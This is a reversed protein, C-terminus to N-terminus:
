KELRGFSISDIASTIRPHLQPISEKQQKLWGLPTTVVIDDFYQAKGDSTTVCVPRSEGTRHEVSTMLTNFQMNGQALPVTAIRAIIKQYNTPIFCDHNQHTGGEICDELYFFKLSQLEVGDGVYAGWMQSMGLVLERERETMDGCQVASECSSEFFSYLSAAPHIDDGQSKSHESALDLIEWVQKLARNAEPSPILQGEGDVLLTN